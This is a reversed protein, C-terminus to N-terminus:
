WWRGPRRCRAGVTPSLNKGLGRVSGLGTWRVLCRQTVASSWPHKPSPLSHTGGLLGTSRRPALASRRRCHDGHGGGLGGGGGDTGAATATDTSVLHVAVFFNRFRLVLAQCPAVSFPGQVLSMEWVRADHTCGETRPVMTYLSIPPRRSVAAEVPVILPDLLQQLLFGSGLLTRRTPPKRVQIRSRRSLMLPALRPLLACACTVVATSVV